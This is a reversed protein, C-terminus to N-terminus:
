AKVAEKTKHPNRANAKKKIGLVLFRIVPIRKFAEYLGVSLAIVAVISIIYDVALPLATFKYLSYCVALVVPYHVIYIGFSAKTMYDTLKNHWNLYAKFCGLIALIASYLYANTILSKLCHDDTYNKGFFIISYAVGLGVAVILMPIRIKEVRELVEDHSFVFYGLFFAVGYIGFRYVSVVPVNLIQSGGWILLFFALIFPINAKGGLTWIKDNKDITLILVLILSFIFLTQIFWLPGTGALISVPYILFGPMKDTANGITLNFYGTIWQYVFLGLTSPVLLKVVREKLFEKKTRRKLSYRVCIGSVLFLLAMFWPYVFAPFADLGPIGNTVSLSAPVGSINYMYFVHYILVLIVTIWRINDLYYKRMVIRRTHINITTISKM